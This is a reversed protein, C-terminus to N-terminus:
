FPAGFWAPRENLNASEFFTQKSTKAKRPGSELEAVLADMRSELFKIRDENELTQVEMWIHENKMRDKSRKASKVNRVRRIRDKKVKVETDGSSCSNSMSM